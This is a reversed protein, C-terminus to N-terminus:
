YKWKDELKADKELVRYLEEDDKKAKDYEPKSHGPPLNDAKRKIMVINLNESSRIGRIDRSYKPVEFDLTDGRAANIHYIGNKDTITKEATCSNIIIVGQVSELNIGLIRGTLMFPPYVKHVKPKFVKPDHIGIDHEIPTDPVDQALVANSLFLVISFLLFYLKKM